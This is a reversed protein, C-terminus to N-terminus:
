SRSGLTERLYQAVDHVFRHVSADAIRHGVVANVAGGLAGLPPDYHGLFDLQTESGTLPYIALEAHMLPFLRRSKVSEWELKLVTRPPADVDRPQEEVSEVSINIETGVEIVGVQVRLEAAVAEARCSAAVTAKKFVELAGATMADRVEAYPHNVYDYCRVERSKAM